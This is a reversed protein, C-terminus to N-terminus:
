LRRCKQLPPPSRRVTGDGSDKDMDQENLSDQTAVPEVTDSDKSENEKERVSTIRIRDEM